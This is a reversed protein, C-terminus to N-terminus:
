LVYVEFESASPPSAAMEDCIDEKALLIAHQIAEDEPDGHIKYVRIWEYKVEIVHSSSM